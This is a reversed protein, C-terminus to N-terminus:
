NGDTEGPYSALSDVGAHLTVGRFAFGELTLTRGAGTLNKVSCVIRQAGTKIGDAFDSPLRVRCSRCAGGMRAMSKPLCGFSSFSPFARRADRRSSESNRTLM